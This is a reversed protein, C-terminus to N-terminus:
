RLKKKQAKGGVKVAVKEREATAHAKLAPNLSPLAQVAEAIVSNGDVVAQREQQLRKQEARNAELQKKREQTMVWSEPFQYRKKPKHHRTDLPIDAFSDGEKAEKLLTNVIDGLYRKNQARTSFKECSMRVIDTDPNFRPGVLKQFTLRQQETLYKPVLDATSLEVVVKNEAPHSEGM